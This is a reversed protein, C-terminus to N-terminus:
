ISANLSGELESIQNVAEECDFAELANKIETLKGDTEAGYTFDSHASIADLAGDRDFDDAAAKATALAPLLLSVDAAQKAQAEEEMFIASLQGELEVLGARFPPYFEDCYAKDEDIASRELQAASTGLALAGINRLSSKLGHVEITFAKMDTDLFSDMRGIRESLLRLTLKVTDVYLDPMNSMADLAADVDLEEINRLLTLPDGTNELSNDASDPDDLREKQRRAEALVEESQKDRILSNLVDNLQLIDIPKAIFEDFGNQLFEEAQGVIANATLAVVPRSYGAKRILKTTEMGDLEPMMHDMFIIDYVGGDRIKELAEFGSLATDITLGYPKMLGQAVFLNTNMDDVILVKGYPMYDRELQARQKTETFKLNQLSQAAEAGITDDNGEVRHQKLYIIFKTGAGPESEVEIKGGMMNVLNRSIAIGIGAGAGSTSHNIDKSFIANKGLLADVQEQDMGQGSDKIEFLLTVDDDEESKFGIKFSISGQPTFKIANSLVHNLIQKIRLEDGYLVAPLDKTVKVSFNQGEVINLLNFQAVDNILSSTEYKDPIIEFKGSELKALDLIDNIIGILLKGSSNIKNFSEITEASNKKNDLEIDSIGIIANMPTRIEHSMTSLFKSKSQNAQKVADRARALDIDALKAKMKLIAKEKQLKRILAMLTKQHDMTNKM